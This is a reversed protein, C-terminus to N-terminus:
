KSVSGRRRFVLSSVIVLGVIVLIITLIATVIRGIVSGITSKEGDVGPVEQEVTTVTEEATSTTETNEQTQTESKDFEFKEINGEMIVKDSPRRPSGTQEATILLKDFSDSLNGEFYGREIDGVRVNADRETIHAWVVYHEYQTQYPYVLGECRGILKYDSEKWVSTIKCVANNGSLNVVGESALARPTIVLSLVAIAIIVFLKKM